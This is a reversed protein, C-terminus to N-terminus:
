NKQMILIILFLEKAIFYIFKGWLAEIEFSSKLTLM